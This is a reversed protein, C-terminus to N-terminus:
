TGFVIDHSRKSQMDSLWMSPMNATNVLRQSPNKPLLSTHSESELDIARYADRTLYIKQHQRLLRDKRSRWSGKFLPRSNQRQIVGRPTEFGRMANQVEDDFVKGIEVPWGVTKGESSTEDDENMMAVRGMAFNVFIVEGGHRTLLQVEELLCM